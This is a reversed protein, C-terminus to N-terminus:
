AARQYRFEKMLWKNVAATTMEGIDKYGTPVNLVHANGGLQKKVTHAGLRGANDNDLAIFMQKDLAKIKSAQDATISNGLLAMASNGADELKWADGPGEVLFVYPRPHHHITHFNYVFSHKPFGRQMMWKPEGYRCAQGQSHYLQCTPCQPKETRAQFGICVNGEDSFFPVISKQQKASFGVYMRQLIARSFGRAQFYPSPIVLHAQLQAKTLPFCTPGTPIVIPPRKSHRSLFEQLYQVTDTLPIYAGSRSLLTRVLALLTPKWPPINHCARANCFWAIPFHYANPIICVDYDNGKHVPCPVCLNGRANKKPVPCNLDDLLPLLLDDESIIVSIQNNVANWNIRAMCMTGLILILPSVWDMRAFARLNSTSRM